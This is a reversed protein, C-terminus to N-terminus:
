PSGCFDLLCRWGSRFSGVKGLPQNEKAVQSWVWYPLILALGPISMAIVRLAKVCDTLGVDLCSKWQVLVLWVRALAQHFALVYSLLVPSEHWEEM